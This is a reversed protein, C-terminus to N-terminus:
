QTGFAEVYGRVIAGNLQSFERSALGIDNFMLTCPTRELPASANGEVCNAYHHHAGALHGVEHAITRGTIESTGFVESVAFSRDDFRLGGICDASGVTNGSSGVINKSTLLVVVDVGAPRRGGLHRKAQTLLADVGTGVFSVRDSRVTRVEIGLPEYSAAAVPMVSRVALDNVGDLLLMVDLQLRAGPASVASPTPELCTVLEDDFVDPISPVRTARAPGANLTLAAAVM